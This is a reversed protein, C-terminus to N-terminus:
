ELVMRGHLAAALSRRITAEAVETARKRNLGTEVDLPPHIFVQVALPGACLAQWLHPVLDMDAYWAFTGRNRRTLPLGFNKTYALTVPVIAIDPSTAAAFFSSKFPLVKEGNHSTGEPFLVIRDGRALRQQLETSSHKTTQRSNRNVFVTRQLKALWGFFPWQGVEQKAVFSVPAVASLIVIDIWSVHNSVILCQGGQPLAGTIHPTFALIRCLAKHYHHPLAKAMSPWVMLLLAQLPMLPLTVIIFGMLRLSAGFKGSV